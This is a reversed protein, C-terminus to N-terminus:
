LYMHKNRCNIKPYRKIIGFFHEIKIRNKYTIEQSKSFKRIKNINKTNRNNPKILFKIKHKSLKKKLSKSDYGKDAL